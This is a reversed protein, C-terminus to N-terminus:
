CDAAEVIALAYGGGGFTGDIYLAGDKPALAAIVESLMVPVHKGAFGSM